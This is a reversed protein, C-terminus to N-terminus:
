FNWRHIASDFNMGVMRRDESEIGWFLGPAPISFCPEKPNAIDWVGINDQRNNDLRLQLKTVTFYHYSWTILKRGELFAGDVTSTHFVFEDILDWTKAHRAQVTKRHTPM